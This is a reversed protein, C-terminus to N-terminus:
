CPSKRRRPLLSLVMLLILYKALEFSEENIGAPMDVVLLDLDGWVVGNVYQKLMDIRRYGSWTVPTDVNPLIHRTSIIKLGGIIIPKVKEEVEPKANLTGSIKAQTPNTIDADILGVKLGKNVFFKSLGHAITSKGVGGKNSVVLITKL